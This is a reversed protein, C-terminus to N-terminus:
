SLTSSSKRQLLLRYRPAELSADTNDNGIWVSKQHPNDLTGATFNLPTVMIELNLHTGVRRFRVGSLLYLNTVAVYPPLNVLDEHYMFDDM